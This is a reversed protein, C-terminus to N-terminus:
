PWAAVRTRVAAARCLRPLSVFGHPMGLYNTTRVDVGAARLPEAYLLRM